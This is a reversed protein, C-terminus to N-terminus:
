PRAAATRTIFLDLTSRHEVREISLPITNMWGEVTRDGPAAAVRIDTTRTTWRPNTMESRFALGYITSRRDQRYLALNAHFVAPWVTWYDGGIVTAGSTLVEPTMTGFKRDLSLRLAALSPRGYNAITLTVLATALALSAWRRWKGVLASAILGVALAVMAIGPYVYRAFYLNIQVWGSTGTILWHVLGAALCVAAGEVAPREAGRVWLLVSGAIAAVAIAFLATHNLSILASSLLQSWAHPWESPLLLTSPTHFDALATMAYGAAVGIAASSLARWSLPRRLLVLTGVVLFASLNVWHALGMLLMSAVLSFWGRRHALVIATAALSLSLGYPQVVLWDFQADVRALALLLVNAFAGAVFWRHPDATVCRALLFPALLGAVTMLWGQFLLNMLPDRIPTALLPVLMGYRDQAWYFPAWRQLSVLIPILSDASHWIHFPGGAMWAALLGVLVTVGAWPNLRSAFRMSAVGYAAPAM